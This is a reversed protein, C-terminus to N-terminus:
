LEFLVLLSHWEFPSKFHAGEILSDTMKEIGRIGVPNKKTQQRILQM